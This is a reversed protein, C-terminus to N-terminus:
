IAKVIVKKCSLSKFKFNAVSLDLYKFYSFFFNGDTIADWLQPSGHELDGVIAKALTTAKQNAESTSNGVSSPCLGVCSCCEAQYYELCAFCKKCCSCGTPEIECDCSKLLTCKSVISACIAENCDPHKSSANVTQSLSIMLAFICMFVKFTVSM